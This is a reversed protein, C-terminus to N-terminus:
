CCTVFAVQEVLIKHKFIILEWSIKKLPLVLMHFIDKLDSNSPCMDEVFICPYLILIYILAIWRTEEMVRLIAVAGILFMAEM